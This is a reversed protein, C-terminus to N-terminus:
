FLEAYKQWGTGIKVRATFTGRGTGNYRWLVGAMDRAVLDARGDGTLDGIGVVANYIQWGSGAKVRNALTGQGTGNYRWLAGSADRALVDGKGDGNLDGAGVILLNKWGRGIRVGARVGGGSANAAYLFLDGTTTQRALMDPRGDGTLDGPSVLVDFQNWGSSGVLKDPVEPWSYRACGGDMLYLRGPWRRVLFDNCRDGNLDGMPVIKARDDLVPGGEYGGITGDSRGPRISMIPNGKSLTILDGIADREWVDRWAPTGYIQQFTGSWVGPAGHGDAPRATVTWTYRGNALRTGGDSVGTWTAYLTHRAEGGTQTRVTKGTRPDKLTLTWDGAPKSLRVWFQGTDTYDDADAGASTGSHQYLTAWGSLPQTAVGVPVVHVRQAADSYAVHGGFKDVTWTVRRQPRQTAPFDALPSNVATGSTFDTLELKGDPKNHRVLYGDGLLAEDAPVPVSKKATRDYVGARTGCSWYLWRGLAQLEEPTCGSGTDVEGAPKKAALDYATVSGTNGTASWLTGAWLASAVPTRTLLKIDTAAGTNYVTQQNTGAHTYVVYHDAADTITGGSLGTPVASGYRTVIQDDADAKHALSILDGGDSYLAHCDPASPLCEGGLEMVSGREGYEPTGQVHLERTYAHRKGSSDDGVFLTGGGVALGQVKAPVAALDLVRSVQPAGDAGETVRYAGWDLPGTIGGVVVASGDPGPTIPSSYGARALLKRPEGGALPTAKIGVSGGTAEVLWNGVLVPRFSSKLKPVRVPEASLDDRPVVNLVTPQTRDYWAVHRPTLLTAVSGGVPATRGTVKATTIDVAALSRAGALDVSLLLSSADGGSVPSDVLRAGEPLGGVLRDRTTGDDAVDLLHVEVPVPQADSAPSAYKVAVVTNGYTRAYSLGGPIKVFATTGRAMDRLEVEGARSYALTDSGSTHIFIRPETRTSAASFSQGDSYRTWQIRTAGDPQNFFGLAGAGGPGSDQSGQLYLAREKAAYAAPIEVAGPFPAPGAGTADGRAAQSNASALGATLTFAVAAAVAARM